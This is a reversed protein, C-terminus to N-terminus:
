AACAEEIVLAICDVRTQGTNGVNPLTVTTDVEISVVYETGALGDSFLVSVRTADLVQAIVGLTPVTVPDVTARVVSLTEGEQLWASYDITYLRSEGAKLRIQTLLM